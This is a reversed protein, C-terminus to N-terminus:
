AMDAVREPRLWGAVAARFRWWPLAAMLPSMVVFGWWPVLTDTGLGYLLGYGGLVVTWIAGANTVLPFRTNGLGRLAGSYAFAMAWGPQALAIIRLMAAGAEIVAPDQSFLGMLPVALVFYVAAVSGMWFVTWRAAVGAVAGGLEVRRAGVSMGVLATTALSFGIGPLFALSLATMTLRQAALAATGQSAMLATFATFAISALVQELAAPVGLALIRCAIRLSPRWDGRSWVSVARGGWALTALLLLTALTRGTLAAWASGQTGLAPLGLHGFILLVALVANVVNAVLVALMPTRADGAGRLLAGAVYMLVLFTSGGLTVRLYAATVQGVEPPLRLWHSIPEALAWGLASIPLSLLVAWVLAQKAVRNARAGDRAGIAQSVLISGGISVAALLGIIVLLVQLSSGVGAIAEAGLQAVLLTDVIGVLTQLLNETMTPWALGLVRRRLSGRGPFPLATSTQSRVLAATSM